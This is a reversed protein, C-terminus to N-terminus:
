IEERTAAAWRAMIGAAIAQAPHKALAAGAAHEEYNLLCLYNERGKRVAVKSDKV